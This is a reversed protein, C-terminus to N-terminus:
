RKARPRYASRAAAGLGPSIRSSRFMGFTSPRSANRSIRPSSLRRHTGTTTSVVEPANSSTALAYPLPAFEYM